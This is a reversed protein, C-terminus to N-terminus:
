ETISRKARSSPDCNLRFQPPDHPIQCLYGAHAWRLREDYEPHAMWLLLTQVVTELIWLDTLNYRGAWESIAARVKSLKQHSDMESWKVCPYPNVPIPAKDVEGVAIYMETAGRQVLTTRRWYELFVWREENSSRRIDEQLAASIRCAVTLDNYKNYGADEHTALYKVVHEILTQMNALQELHTSGKMYLVGSPGSSLSADTDMGEVMFSPSTM